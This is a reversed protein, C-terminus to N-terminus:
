TEELIPGRCEEPSSLFTMELGDLNKQILPCDHVGHVLYACDLGLRIITIM